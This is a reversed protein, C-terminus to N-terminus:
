GLAPLRGFKGTGFDNIATEIEQQSNMVFPGYGVIPEPILAGSLLLLTSDSSASIRVESGSRDFLILGAAKAARAGNAAIAGSLVAIAACHAEPLTLTVEGAARLRLDWVNLESFTAAPGQQGAFSGAIM